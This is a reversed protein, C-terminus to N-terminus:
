QYRLVLFLPLWDLVPRTFLSLQDDPNPPPTKYFIVDQMVMCCTLSKEIWWQQNFHKNWNWSVVIPSPWSPRVLDYNIENYCWWVATLVTKKHYLNPKPFTSPPFNDLELFVVTSKKRKKEGIGFSSKMLQLCMILFFCMKLYVAALILSHFSSSM